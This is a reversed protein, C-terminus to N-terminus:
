RGIVIHGGPKTLGNEIREEDLRQKNELYQM